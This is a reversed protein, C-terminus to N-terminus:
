LVGLTDPNSFDKRNSAELYCGELDIGWHVKSYTLPYKRTLHLDVKHLIDPQLEEIEGNVHVWFSLGFLM